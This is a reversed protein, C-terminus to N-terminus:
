KCQKFNWGGRVFEFEECILRKLQRNLGDLSGNRRLAIVKVQSNLPHKPKDGSTDDWGQIHFWSVKLREQFSFRDFDEDDRMGTDWQVHIFSKVIGVLIFNRSISKKYVAPHDIDSAFAMVLDGPMADRWEVGYGKVRSKFKDTSKLSMKKQNDTKIPTVFQSLTSQNTIQKQAPSDYSRVWQTLTSQKGVQLHRDYPVEATLTISEASPKHTTVKATPLSSPNELLDISYESDSGEFQHKTDISDLWECQKKLNATIDIDNILMDACQRVHKALPDDNSVVASKHDSYEELVYLLAPINGYKTMFGKGGNMYAMIFQMISKFDGQTEENSFSKGSSLIGVIRISFSDWNYSRHYRTDNAAAVRELVTNTKSFTDKSSSSQLDFVEKVQNPDMKCKKETPSYISLADSNSFVQTPVELTGKRKMDMVGFETYNKCGIIDPGITVSSQKKKKSSTSFGQAYNYNMM